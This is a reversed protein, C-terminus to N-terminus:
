IRNKIRKELDEWYGPENQYRWVAEVEDNFGKRLKEQNFIDARFIAEFLATSFSGSKNLLFYYLEEEAKEVM